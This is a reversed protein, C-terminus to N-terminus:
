EADAPASPQALQRLTLSFRRGSHAATTPITHETTLQIAVSMLVLSGPPLAVDIRTTDSAIDRLQFRRTAGLSVIAIVSGPVHHEAKDSHWGTRDRGDRYLNALIYNFEQGVHGTIRERVAAMVPPVSQPPALGDMALTADGYAAVLRPTPSTYGDRQIQGVTFDGTHGELEDHLAEALDRPLYDRTLSLHEPILAVAGPPALVGRQRTTATTAALNRSMAGGSCTIIHRWGDIAGSMPAGVCPSVHVVCGLYLSKDVARQGTAGGLLDPREELVVKHLRREGVLRRAEQDLAEHHSLAVRLRSSARQELLRLLEQDGIPHQVHLQGRALRDVLHPVGPDEEGLVVVREALRHPAVDVVQRDGDSARILRRQIGRDLHHASRIAGHVFCQPRQLQTREAPAVALGAGLM